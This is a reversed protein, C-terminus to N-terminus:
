ECLYSKLACIADRLNRAVRQEDFLTGEVTNNPLLSTAAIKAWLVDFINPPADFQSCSERTFHLPLYYSFEGKGM